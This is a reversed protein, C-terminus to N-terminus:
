CLIFCFFLSLAFIVGGQCFPGCDSGYFPRRLFRPPPFSPIARNNQLVCLDRAEDTPFPLSAGVRRQEVATKRCDADAIVSLINGQCAPQGDSGQKWVCVCVCVCVCLDGRQFHSSAPLPFFLAPYSVGETHAINKKVFQFAKDLILNWPSTSPFFHRHIQM